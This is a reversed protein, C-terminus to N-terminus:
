EGSGQKNQITVSKDGGNSGTFVRSEGKPVTLKATVGGYSVACEGNGRSVNRIVSRILRANKWEIDVEFGGRACLGTVRGTPWAKPLAPLPETKM